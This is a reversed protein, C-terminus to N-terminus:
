ATGPQRPAAPRSRSPDARAPVPPGRPVHRGGPGGRPVWRGAAPHVRVASPVRRCTSHIRAPTSAGSPKRCDSRRARSRSGTGSRDGSAPRGLPMTPWPGVQATSWGAEPGNGCWTRVTCTTATSCTPSAGAGPMSRPARGPGAWAALGAPLGTAGDATAIADLVPWVMREIRWPDPQGDPRDMALVANRLDGPYARIINAAIGDGAGPGSAGLHRALELALWRRMGDSPVALWEPTFPDPPAVALVEALRAALPRASGASYLHIM